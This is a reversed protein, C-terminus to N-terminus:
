GTLSSYRGLSRQKDVFNTGVKAQDAYRIGLGYERSELGLILVWLFLLRNPIVSAEQDKINLAMKIMEVRGVALLLNGLTCFSIYFNGYVQTLYCSTM